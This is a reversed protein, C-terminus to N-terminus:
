DTLIYMFLGAGADALSRLADRVARRDAPAALGLRDMLGAVLATGLSACIAAGCVGSALVGAGSTSDAVCASLVATPVLIWLVCVARARVCAIWNSDRTDCVIM